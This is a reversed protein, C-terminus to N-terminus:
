LELFGLLNIIQRPLKPPAAPGGTRQYGGSRQGSSSEALPAAETPLRLHPSTLRRRGCVWAWTRFSTSESAFQERVAVATLFDWDGPAPFAGAEHRPASSDWGWPVPCPAVSARFGPPPRNRPEGRSGVGRKALIGRISELPTEQLAGLLGQPAIPAGQAGPRGKPAGSGRGRRWAMRSRLPNVIHAGGHTSCAKDQKTM